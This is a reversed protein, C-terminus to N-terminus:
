PPPVASSGPKPKSNGGKWKPKSSERRPRKSPPAKSSPQTSSRKRTVPRGSSASGRSRGALHSLASSLKTEKLLTAAAVGASGFLGSKDFPATVLRAALEKDASSSSLEEERRWAVLTAMMKAAMQLVQFNISVLGQMLKHLDHPNCARFQLEDGKDFLANFLISHLADSLSQFELSAITLKELDRLRRSVRSSSSSARFEPPLDSRLPESQIQPMDLIEKRFKSPLPVAQFKYRAGAPCALPDVVPQSGMVEKGTKLFAFAQDLVPELDVSAALKEKDASMPAGVLRLTSKPAAVSGGVPTTVVEPCVAKALPLIGSLLSTISDRAASVFDSLGAEQSHGHVVSDEEEGSSAPSSESEVVEPLVPPPPGWLAGSTITASPTPKKFSAVGSSVAVPVSWSSGSNFATVSPSDRVGASSLSAGANQVSFQAPSAATLTRLMEQLSTFLTGGSSLEKKLAGDVVAQVDGLTLGTGVDLTRSQTSVDAGGSGGQPLVARSCSESPPGGSVSDVPPLGSLLSERQREMGLLPSVSMSTSVVPSTRQLQVPLKPDSQSVSMVPAQLSAVSKFGGTSKTSAPICTVAPQSFSSSASSVKSPKDREKSARLHRSMTALFVAEFLVFWFLLPKFTRGAM